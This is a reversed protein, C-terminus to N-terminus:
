ARREAHIMIISLDAPTVGELRSAQAYTEPQFKLLSARAENRLGPVTEMNLHRPFRRHEMKQQRRAHSKQRSIYGEYQRESLVTTLLRDPYERLSSSAERLHDISYGPRKLIDPLRGEPLSTSEIIAEARERQEVRQEHVGWREDDILGLERARPTLRDDANDARLSLRHEARSTFMRYPEVPTKTVLDDMLVGIYCEDRGFRVLEQELVFRIANLGALLGQAGAEEYGSTGNIQGATFLGAIRKSQTTADLQHPLITDYEVAYGWVLVDARECGPMTRVIQAQVESPLSSSIGNAYVRNDRHSEPELFVTHETRDPFRVVKDEISPCYRPGATTIQGNYIPARHLNASILEHAGRTTNTLRCDLQELRPFDSADTMASFPVPPDDSYQPELSDWDISERALRPPTGTKLRGLEFGLDTLAKSIPNASSEGVRGGPTQSEGTHMLARMFTGTTLVLARVHIPYPESEKPRILAGAIADDEVLLEDVAGEIITIGERAQILRQIEESYAHKDCQCRPGRVAAGRSANLVKFNIGTNDAAIGMIGGLADIERVIQGKALGGISPNCSMVGIKSPDLTVLAVSAGLNAAAWAAETGAHGGGVVLIDFRDHM